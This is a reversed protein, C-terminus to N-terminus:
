DLIYIIIEILDLVDVGGDLNYDASCPYDIVIIELDRYKQDIISQILDNIEDPRNFVPIIISFKM